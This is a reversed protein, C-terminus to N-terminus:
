GCVLVSVEGLVDYQPSHTARLYLSGVDNVEAPALTIRLEGEIAIVNEPTQDRWVVFTANQTEDFTLESEKWETNLLLYRDGTPPLAFTIPCYVEREYIYIQKRNGTSPQALGWKATFARGDVTGFLTTENTFIVRGPDGPTDPGCAVLVASLALVFKLPSM